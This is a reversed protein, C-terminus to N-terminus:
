GCYVDDDDMSAALPLGDYARAIVVSRVMQTVFSLVTRPLGRRIRHHFKITNSIM